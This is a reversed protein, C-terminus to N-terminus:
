TAIHQISEVLRRVTDVDVPAEPLRAGPRARAREYYPRLQKLAELDERLDPRLDAYRDFARRWSYEHVGQQLLRAIVVSRAIAWLHSLATVPSLRFREPRAFSDLHRLRCHVELTLADPDTAAKALRERVAPWSPSTRVVIAEDVLHAVFSPRDRAEEVLSTVTRVTPIVRRSQDVRVARDVVDASERDAVVIMVDVDSTENDDGRAVSGFVLVAVADATPLGEDIAALRPASDWRSLLPGDDDGM